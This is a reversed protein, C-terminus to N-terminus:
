FHKFDSLTFLLFNQIPNFSAYSVTLNEKFGLDADDADDVCDVVAPPAIIEEDDVL